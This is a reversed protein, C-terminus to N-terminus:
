PEQTTPRHKSAPKIPGAQYILHLQLLETVCKPAKLYTNSSIM